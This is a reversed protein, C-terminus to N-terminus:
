SCSKAKRAAIIQVVGRELIGTCKLGNTSLKKVLTEATYLKYIDKKTLKEAKEIAYNIFSNTHPEAIYIFGGPKLVRYAEQIFADMDELENAGLCLTVVDFFDDKYELECPDALKFNLSKYQERATLVNVAGMDVGYGKINKKAALMNLLTGDKCNVDLVRYGDKMIIYKAVFNRFTNQIHESFDKICNCECECKVIM